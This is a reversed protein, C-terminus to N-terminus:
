KRSAAAKRKAETASTRAGKVKAPRMVGRCFIEALKNIVQDDGIGFHRNGGFLKEVLFYNFFQMYAATFGVAPDIGEYLAGSAKLEAFYGNFRRSLNRALGEFMKRFHRNEFELVDIYMLLWFDHHDNVMQKVLGGFRILSEPQFPEEIDDFIARLREDIVQQYKRIISELIEEKTRYYNYLNGLSTGTRGAIERMSTAHFGRKIFLQKAAEEIRGKKEEIIEHSLKPMSQYL